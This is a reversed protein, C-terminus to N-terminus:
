RLLGCALLDCGMLLLSCTKYFAATRPLTPTRLLHTLLFVTCKYDCHQPPLPLPDRPSLPWDLWYTVTKNQKTKFFILYLLLQLHRRINVDLRRVCFIFYFSPSLHLYM